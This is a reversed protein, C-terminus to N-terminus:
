GSAAARVDARHADRTQQRASDRRARRASLTPWQTKGTRRRRSSAATRCRTARRTSILEDVFEIRLNDRSGLGMDGALPM